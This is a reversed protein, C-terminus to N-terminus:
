CLQYIFDMRLFDAKSLLATVNGRSWGGATRHKLEEGPMLIIAERKDQETRGEMSLHLSIEEKFVWAERTGCM